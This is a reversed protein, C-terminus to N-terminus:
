GARKVGSSVSLESSENCDWDDDMVDVLGNALDVLLVDNIAFGGVNTDVVSCLGGVETDAVTCLGCINM